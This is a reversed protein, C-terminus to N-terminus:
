PTSTTATLELGGELKVGVRMTVRGLFVEVSLKGIPDYGM